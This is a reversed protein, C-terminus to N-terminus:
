FKLPLILSFIKLFYIIQHHVHKVICSVDKIVVIIHLAAFRCKSRQNLMLDNFHCLCFCMILEFILEM